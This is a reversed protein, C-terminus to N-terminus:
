ATWNFSLMTSHWAHASIRSQTCFEQYAAGRSLCPRVFGPLLTRSLELKGVDATSNIGLGAQSPCPQQGDAAAEWM